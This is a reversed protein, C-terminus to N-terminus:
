SESEEQVDGARLRHLADTFEFACRELASESITMGFDPGAFTFEAVEDDPYIRTKIEIKGSLTVWSNLSMSGSNKSESNGSGSSECGSSGSM